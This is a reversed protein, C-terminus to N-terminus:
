NKEGQESLDLISQKVLDYQKWPLFHNEDPISIMEPDVHQLVKQAFDFNAYPVIKDNTGHMYVVKSRVLPWDPELLRLEDAHALKEDTAVRLGRPTIWRTPRIKGFKTVWFVKEHDPDIAPALLVIGTIAESCSMAVKAAIPGGYSHGVLYIKRDTDKFREIIPYLAEAQASISPESQKPYSSGYGLRDVSILVFDQALASDKLYKFYADAGGPAGHIFVLVPADTTTQNVEIYRLSSDAEGTWGIIPDSDSDRFEKEIAMQESQKCAALFHVIFVIFAGLHRM